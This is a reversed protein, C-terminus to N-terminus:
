GVAVVEPKGNSMLDFSLPAVGTSDGAIFDKINLVADKFKVKTGDPFTWQFDAEADRGNKFALGAIYDNGADGVNRKGSVSITISKATMLRRTWGQHDFPKWEEVGNDFSVSFSEMDAINVFNEIETTGKNVQFQNEYVPFVGTKQAM